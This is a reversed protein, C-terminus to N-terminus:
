SLFKLKADLKKTGPASLTQCNAPRNCGCREVLIVQSPTFGQDTEPSGYIETKFATINLM